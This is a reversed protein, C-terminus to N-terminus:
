DSFKKLVESIRDIDNETNFAHFALRVGPGRKAHLISNQNLMNSLDQVSKKASLSRFNLIPSELNLNQNPELYSYGSQDLISQLLKKLRLSEALLSEVGTELILDM